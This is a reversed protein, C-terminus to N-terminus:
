PVSVTTVSTLAQQRPEPDLETGVPERAAPNYRTALDSLVTADLLYFRGQRGGQRAPRAVLGLPSLLGALGRTSKVWAYGREHLAELLETPTVVTGVEAGVRQLAGILRAAQGAEDDAERLDSLERAARLIRTARDGGAEADAVMALALLPAWLDVARDDVEQGDLVRPALDYATIIDDIRTLCALACADRLAQAEADTERGLRAVAEDKRRRFM